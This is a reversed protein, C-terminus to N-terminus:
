KKLALKGRKFSITLLQMFLKLATVVQNCNPFRVKSECFLQRYHNVYYLFYLSRHTMLRISVPINANAIATISHAQSEACVFWATCVSAGDTVAAAVASSVGVLLGSGAANVSGSGV